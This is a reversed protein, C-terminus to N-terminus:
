RYHLLADFIILIPWVSTRYMKHQDSKLLLPFFNVSLNYFLLQVLM